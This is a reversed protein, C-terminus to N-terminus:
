GAVRRALAARRPNEPLVLGMPEPRFLRPDMPRLDDAVKLAFGAQALVDRQLDAGPALEIVTLGAARLELV